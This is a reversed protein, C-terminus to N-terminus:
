FVCTSLIPSMFDSFSCHSYKILIQANRVGTEARMGTMGMSREVYEPLWQSTLNEM